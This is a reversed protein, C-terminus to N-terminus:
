PKYEEEPPPGKREPCPPDAKEIIRNKITHFHIDRPLHREIPEIDHDHVMLDYAYRLFKYRTPHEELLWTPAYEVPLVHRGEHMLAGSETIKPSHQYPREPGTSSEYLASVKWDVLLKKLDEPMGASRGPFTGLMEELEELAVVQNAQHAYMVSGPLAPKSTPYKDSLSESSDSDSKEAKPAAPQMSAVEQEHKRIWFREEALERGRFNDSYDSVSLNRVVRHVGQGRGFRSVVVNMIM